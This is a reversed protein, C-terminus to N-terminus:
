GENEARIAKRGFYSILYFSVGLSIVDKFLFLGLFSMYRMHRIGPVAIIAGPTTMVMTSTVFFMVITILGGVIGATPRLYGVIFLIAAAIETLGIIDAGIYQGFLKFHWWILPSHSVLPVIGEAGPATMKYSGAWLLMVIMGVSTVRFPIGRDDIWAALRTLSNRANGLANESKGSTALSMIVRGEGVRNAGCKSPARDRFAGGNSRKSVFIWVPEIDSEVLRGDAWDPNV